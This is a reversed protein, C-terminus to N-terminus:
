CAWAQCLTCHQRFNELEPHTGHRKLIGSLQHTCSAAALSCVQSLCTLTYCVTHQAVSLCLEEWM